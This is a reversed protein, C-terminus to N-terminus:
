RRCSAPTTSPWRASPRRRAEGRADLPVLEGSSSRVYLMRCRRRTRRSSASRAGHHGPLHQEARLHDLGAAHRVRLLARGRGAARTLGLAAARDRDIDVNCPRTAAAAPRHERRRLRAAHADEGDDDALRRLARGHRGVAAHVPVATRRAAASASPRRIRSRSATPRPDREAEAASENMSTTSRRRASGSRCSACRSSARQEGGGRGVFSFFTAVSPDKAVIDMAVASPADLEAFSIGQAAELSIRVENQDENPIFGEARGHLALGHGRPRCRSSWRRARPPAAGHAPRARLLALMGDFFQETPKYLRGHQERGQAAPPVERQVADAHAVALRLRLRPDGRRHHGRVRPLAPRPHRGHLPHPHLGRGALDDDLHDHLRDGELGNLAAEMPKEGMEMHRVINELMVIADDVVFGVSLTLAMLSLNDLSYGFLYMVAFTGVISLPLALSPIITASVNRLFLFIVLIVLVLTLLLTFKVDDVSARISDARDRHVQLDVSAPLQSRFAPLLARVRDSVEVTNTGPQKQVALIFGRSATSGPRPRTTRSATSSTASTTSGCRAHRQPLRRHDARLRRSQLAPREGARTYNTYPGTLVGTPLNVNSRASPPRRSRRHRHRAHRAPAPRAAVRVAYKQAGFVQVQAVGEITSIRQAM